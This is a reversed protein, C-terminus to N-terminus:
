CQMAKLYKANKEIHLRQDMLFNIRDRPQIRTASSSYGYISVSCFDIYFPTYSEKASM